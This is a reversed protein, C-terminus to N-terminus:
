LIYDRFAPKRTTAEVELVTRTKPISRAGLWLVKGFQNRLIWGAGCQNGTRPWAGDINCKLWGLAPQEWKAQVAQTIHHATQPGTKEDCKAWEVADAEAINVISTAERDRGQFTLENRSKWIRWIIWPVMNSHSALSPIEKHFNLVWYLNAYISDTWEGGLPAPIPSLAWILRAYPCKFLLHNVSEAQVSCRLCSVERAIHRHHLNGAVAVCNNLCKWLFHQVKPSADTKWVQQYLSNLSPQNVEQPQDEKNIIQTLVWYGSKVSYHGSRAFDWAFGDRSQVGGPRIEEISKRDEDSFILSLLERKWERGDEETLDKVTSISSVLSQFHVHVM